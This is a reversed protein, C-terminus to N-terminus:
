EEAGETGGGDGGSGTDSGADGEADNKGKNFATYSDLKKMTEEQENDMREIESDVDDIFSM